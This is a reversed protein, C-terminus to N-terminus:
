VEKLIKIEENTLHRWNGIELSGIKLDGIAIRKLSLVPHNIKDCMKRIQRNRGEWIRIETIVSNEFVKKIKLLAKSTRYNDIILGNEFRNIEEKTPKGKLKAIYTKDIHHKPHTLKYTLNGDNTLILMGETEYDLRGVPYIRKNTNILDLVTKRGFNDKASSIYGRPKNLLIYTNEIKNYIIENDFKIEDCELKILFGMDTIVKNNVQVRGNKIYEECKRRSSVGNNALYKQLRM